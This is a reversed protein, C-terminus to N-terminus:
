PVTYEEWRATVIWMDTVPNQTALVYDAFVVIGELARLTITEDEGDLFTARDMLEFGAATIM